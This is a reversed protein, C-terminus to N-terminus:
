QRKATKEDRRAKNGRVAVRGSTLAVEERLQTHLDWGAEALAPSIFKGCIDREYLAKKNM